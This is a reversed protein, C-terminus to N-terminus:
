QNWIAGSSLNVLLESHKLFDVSVGGTNRLKALRKKVLGAGPDWAGPTLIVLQQHKEGKVALTPALRCVPPETPLSSRPQPAAKSPVELMRSIPLCPASTNTVRPNALSNREWMRMKLAIYTFLGRCFSSQRTHAFHSVPSTVCAGLNEISLDHVLVNQMGPFHGRLITISRDRIIPLQPDTAWLLIWLFM